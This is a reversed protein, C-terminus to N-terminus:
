RSGGTWRRVNEASRRMYGLQDAAGFHEASFSGSYGDSLLQRVLPEMGVYGEGAECPYMMEGSIDARANSGDPLGRSADRSRDKLHVHVVYQKLRQYAAAADERVFAFNGTDFTFRLGPVAEMLRLLGATDCCPSSIDDFDELTVTIGYKEAMECMERLGAAVAPFIDEASEGPSVFGPIVLVKDAGFLAARELHRKMKERSIEEPEHPLDYTQYVSSVHMGCGDFLARTEAGGDLRWLDCELGSYGMGNAKELVEPLSGGTQSCAEFVHELFINLEFM